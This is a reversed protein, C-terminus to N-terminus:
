GPLRGGQRRHQFDHDRRDRVYCVTVAFRRAIPARRESCSPRKRDEVRGGCAASSSSGYRRTMVRGDVAPPAFAATRSRALGACAGPRHRVRVRRHLSGPISVARRTRARRAARVVRLPRDGAFCALSAAM